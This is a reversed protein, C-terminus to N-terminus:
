SFINPVNASANFGRSPLVPRDVREPGATEEELEARRDQVCKDCIRVPRMYAQGAASESRSLVSRSTSCRDCVVLGCRRCHHKRLMFGFKRHCRRCDKADEDREWSPSDSMTSVNTDVRSPTPRQARDEHYPAERSQPVSWPDIADAHYDVSANADFGLAQELENNYRHQVPSDNIPHELTTMIQSLRDIQTQYSTAMTSAQHKRYPNDDEEMHEMLAALAENLRIVADRVQVYSPITIDTNPIDQLAAEAQRMYDSEAAGDEELDLRRKMIRVWRRRRVGLSKTRIPEPHWATDVGKLAKAYSWGDEDCLRASHDIQWDSLWFWTNVSESGPKTKPLEVDEMRQPKCEANTWNAVDKPTLARSSFGSGNKLSRENEYLIVLVTVHTGILNYPEDLSRGEQSWWQREAEELRSCAESSGCAAAADYAAEGFKNRILPDAGNILLYEVVDLDAKSAANILATHGMKSKADINAGCEVLYKAVQLHGRSCANHLATWGDRDAQTISTHCDTLFYQVLRLHGHYAAKLLATEGERDRLDVDAGLDILFKVVDLSGRSAAYHLATLGTSSEPQDVNDPAILEKLKAVNGQAAVRYVSQRLKREAAAVIAQLDDASTLVEDHDLISLISSKHDVGSAQPSSPANPVDQDVTKIWEWVKAAEEKQLNRMTFRSIGRDYSGHSLEKVVFGLRLYVLWNIWIGLLVAFLALHFWTISIDPTHFALKTIVRSDPQLNTFSQPYIRSLVNAIATTITGGIDEALILYRSKDANVPHHQRDHQEKQPSADATNSADKERMSRRKPRNTDKESGTVDESRKRSHSAIYAQLAKDLNRFYTTQGELTGKEIPAKLWSSKTWEISFSVILRARSPSAWMICTRTKVYFSSGSPVDPTSTTTITTIHDLPDNEIVEDTLNCRTQKPGMSANLQKIYTSTRKNDSWTGFEIEQAGEKDRLYDEVFRRKFIIDWLRQVSCPYTTDLCAIESSHTDASLCSCTTPEAPADIMEDIDDSDDGPSISSRRMSSTDDGNISKNSARLPRMYRLGPHCSRWIEVLQDYVVDRTLLSAFFHKAHLTSIQIANPFIRANMRKEISVIESFGIVLTTVWGFINANFCINNESVYLRGQVLIEKQYACGYHGENVSPSDSITVASTRRKGSAYERDASLQPSAKPSPVQRHKHDAPEEPASVSRHRGHTQPLKLLSNTPKSPKSPKSESAARPKSAPVSDNSDVDSNTGSDGYDLALQLAGNIPRPQKLEANPTLSGSRPYFPLSEIEPQAIPTNPPLDDDNLLHELTLSPASSALISDSFIATTAPANANVQSPSSRNSGTSNGGLASANLTSPAKPRSVTESEDSDSTVPTIDSKDTRKRVGLTSSNKLPSTMM